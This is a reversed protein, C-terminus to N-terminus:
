REIEVVVVDHLEVKPVLIWGAADISLEEQSIALRASVPRHDRIKLRINEVPVLPAGFGSPQGDSSSERRPAPERNMGRYGSDGEPMLHSVNLLHIWRERDNKPNVFMNSVLHSPGDVALLMARDLVTRVLIRADEARDRCYALGPDDQFHVDAVESLPPSQRVAGWEDYRGTDATTILRGGSRKWEALTGAQEGSLCATNTLVLTQYRKLSQLDIQNDFVFEFPVHNECLLMWTGILGDRYDALNDTEPLHGYFDHTNQSCLVGVDCVYERSFYPERLAAQTHIRATIEVPGEITSHWPTIGHTPGALVFTLMELEHWAWDANKAGCTHRLGAARWMDTHKPNIGRGLRAKFGLMMWKEHFRSSYAHQSVGIGEIRWMPIATEWDKNGFPWLNTNFTCTADPNVERIKDQFYRAVAM